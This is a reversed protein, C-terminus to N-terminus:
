TASKWRQEHEVKKRVVERLWKELSQSQAQGDIDMAEGDGLRIGGEEEEDEGCCLNEALESAEAWEEYTFKGESENLLMKKKGSFAFVQVSRVPKARM